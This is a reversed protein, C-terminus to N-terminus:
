TDGSEQETRFIAVGSEIEEIADGLKTNLDNVSQMAESVEHVGVSIEKIGSLNELSLNGINQDSELIDQVGSSLENTKEKIRESTSELSTMASLIQKGGDSLESTSSEIEQFANLTEKTETNTVAFSSQVEGFLTGAQEISKVVEKLAEAINASNTTSIESLNRIEEAVVSFGRGADGAHAAEIAANMALLNTQAAIKRIAAAAGQIIDIKATVGETFLRNAEDMQSSVKQSSETLQLVSQQRQSTINAVNM